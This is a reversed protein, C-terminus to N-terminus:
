VKSNFNHCKLTNGYTQIPFGLWANAINEAASRSPRPKARIALWIYWFEVDREVEREVKREVYTREKTAAGRGCGCNKNEAWQAHRRHDWGRAWLLVKM